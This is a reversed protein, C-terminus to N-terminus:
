FKKQGSRDLFYQIVEEEPHPVSMLAFMAALEGRHHTGHNVVHMLMQWLPVRFEEGKFNAYQIPKLLDSEQQRELFARLQDEIDHWADRVDGLTPYDAPDLHSRLSVGQWRSLWRSESSMIHVLVSHVDGWSHGQKTRLQERTLGEAVALYRHNAWYSYDVLEHMYSNIDM